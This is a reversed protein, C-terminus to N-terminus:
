ASDNDHGQLVTSIAEQWGAPGPKTTRLVHRHDPLELQDSNESRVVVAVDAQELMQLDNPSDGLAVVQLATSPEQEQYREVLWRVAASKDFQGMACWFRGGQVARLDNRELEAIFLPWKEVSDRWLFPETAWRDQARAAADRPLDTVAAVEEVTWDAFGEFRNGTARLRRLVALIQARNAGFSKVHVGQLDILDPTNRFHNIPLAVGAGNEFVFPAENGLRQRIELIEPLTKSSVLVLPIGRERLSRLAESAAAWSYTQHDLLTGDLDSFVLLRHSTAAMWEM